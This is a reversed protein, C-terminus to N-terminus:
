GAHLGGRGQYGALLKRTEEFIVRDVEKLMAEREEAPIFAHAFGQKLIALADWLSLGGCLRSAEVFERAPNTRGFAPNDTNITVHLGAAWLAKLPYDPPGYGVVEVNSTPCMEVAIGRDRFRAMLAPDDPLTLGHGIRDAHLRYAANWIGKVTAGEGAHITVPVCAEFAPRFVRELDSLNSWDEEGAVDFGVVFGPDRRFAVVEEIIEDLEDTVTRRDVIVLFRIKPGDSGSCETEIAKELAGLWDKVRDFGTGLYKSPSGRLELYRLGERRAYAVIERAFSEIAAPEGLVASGTLEGPREYAEFGHKSSTRLGFRPETVGWLNGELQQTTAHLLLAAARGPRDVRGVIGPWSWPWQGSAELLPRCAELAATRRNGSLEAWIAEAVRRQAELDLIGGIHCHLDAKPVDRLWDEHREEIRRRRLWEIEAPQLRYLSRWNEHHEDRVLADFFNALVHHSNRARDELEGSLVPAGSDFIWDATGLDEPISVPYDASRIPEVGEGGPGLVPSPQHSGLPVLHIEKVVDHPIEGAWFQPDTDKVKAMGEDSLVVHYLQRSGFFSAARQLDASMTKRGGALCLLPLGAGHEVAHLVVRFILERIAEVEELATVGSTGAAVFFRISPRISRELYRAWRAIKERENATREDDTTVIWIEDPSGTPSHRASQATVTRVSTRAGHRGEGDWSETHRADNEPARAEARVTNTSASGDPPLARQRFLPLRADLLGVIEPIVQWSGGLTAVLITPRKRPGSLIM